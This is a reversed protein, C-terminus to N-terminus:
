ITGIIAFAISSSGILLAITIAVILIVKEDEKQQPREKSM